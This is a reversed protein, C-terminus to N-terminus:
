WCKDNRTNKIKARRVLIHHYQVTTKIQIERTILLTSCRKMHRNAVKVINTRRIWSCTTEKWKKTGDEIEKILTKYKESYLDKM